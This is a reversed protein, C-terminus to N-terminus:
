FTKESDLLMTVPGNNLLKVEMHAGFIGTEVKTINSDRLKSVFNDFLKEAPEPSMSKVFGPRNGKRCDGHLTFQSIALVEGGIDIVSLNMRDNEDPFIRLNSVKRSMWVVDKDSDNEGASVLLMLGRDIKGVVKGEVIVEAYDVRQAVVRM